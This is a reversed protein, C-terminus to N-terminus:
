FHGSIGLFHGAIDFGVDERPAPFSVSKFIDIRNGMELYEDVLIVASNGGSWWYVHHLM